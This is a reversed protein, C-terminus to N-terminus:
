RNLRGEKYLNISIGFFQKWKRAVDLKWDLAFGPKRLGEELDEM